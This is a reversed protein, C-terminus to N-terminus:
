QRMLVSDIVSVHNACFTTRPEYIVLQLPTWNATSGGLLASVSVTISRGFDFLGMGTSAYIILIYNFYV